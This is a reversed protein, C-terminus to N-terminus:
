QESFPRAQLLRCPVSLSLNPGLRTTTLPDAESTVELDWATAKIRLLDKDCRRSYQSLMNQVVSQTGSLKTEVKKKTRQEVGLCYRLKRVGRVAEDLSQWVASAPIARLQMGLAQRLPRPSSKNDVQLTRLSSRRIRCIPPSPPAVTLSASYEPLAEQALTLLPSGSPSRLTPLTAPAYDDIPCLPLPSIKTFL